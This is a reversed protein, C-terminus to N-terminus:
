PRVPYSPARSRWASSSDVPCSTRITARCLARPGRPRSHRLAERRAEERPLSKLGFAVNDLITLHPFLAFDQFMLGVGRQEPPVFRAPGAVETDSILIRGATPKEIGSALRLLTTKGCGSPGLLCVIEGPAIALSFGALAYSDGYRREVDEFSLSAAFTAGARRRLHGAGGPRSHGAEGPVQACTPLPAVRLKLDPSNSFWQKM